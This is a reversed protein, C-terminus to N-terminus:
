SSAVDVLCALEPYHEPPLLNVLSARVTERGRALVSRTEVPLPQLQVRRMVQNLRYLLRDDDVYDFLFRERIFLGIFEALRTTSREALQNVLEQIAHPKWTEMLEYYEQLKGPVQRALEADLLLECVIHGLFGCRWTDDPGLLKRFDAGIAGTVHYFGPTGHFWRDDDLHQLIGRAVQEDHETLDDLIPEIRRARLRVQRDVVSLLDPLALGALFHPKDLHRLAHAFYNM